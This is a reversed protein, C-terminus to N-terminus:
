FIRCFYFHEVYFFESFFTNILFDFKNRPMNRLRNWRQQIVERLINHDRRDFDPWNRTVTSWVNEIPNLDPSYPPWHLVDVPYSNLLNTVANATHVPANDHMYVHPENFADMMPFVHNEIINMYQLATFRSDIHILEGPGDATIFGWFADSIRGSVRTTQTYNPHYRTNIPRYVNKRWSVDTSFTKEDTFIITKLRRNDWNELMDECFAIRDVKQADTLKAQCAARRCRIGDKKLLRKIVHHSVNYRRAISAVTSFPQNQFLELIEEEQASSLSKPRGHYKLKEVGGTTLYRHWWRKCTNM